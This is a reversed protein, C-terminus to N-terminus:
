KTLKIVGVVILAVFAILLLVSLNDVFKDFKSREKKQQTVIKITEVTVTDPPCTARVFVLSDKYSVELRVRDQFIVTDRLIELTDTLVREKTVIVTDRVIVSEPVLKAGIRCGSLAALLVITLIISTVPLNPLNKLNM